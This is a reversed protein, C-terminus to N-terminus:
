QVLHPALSLNTNPRFVLDDCVSALMRIAVGEFLNSHLRRLATARKWSLREVCFDLIEGIKPERPKWDFREVKVGYSWSTSPHLYLSLIKPDPFNEPFDAALKPHSKDLYGLHNSALELKLDKRFNSLATHINARPLDAIEILRDGFGARALGLAIAAGCGRVGTTDYDGGTLLAFLILGGRNLGLQAEIHAATYIDVNGIAKNKPSPNDLLYAHGFYSSV